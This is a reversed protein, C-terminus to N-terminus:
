ELEIVKRSRRRGVCVCVCTSKLRRRDVFLVDGFRCVLM